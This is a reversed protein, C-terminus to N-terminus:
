NTSTNSKQLVFSVQMGVICPVRDHTDCKWYAVLSNSELQWYKKLFEAGLSKHFGAACDEKRYQNKNLKLTTSAKDGSSSTNGRSCEPSTRVDETSSMLPAKRTPYPIQQQLNSYQIGNRCYVHSWEYWRNRKQCSM